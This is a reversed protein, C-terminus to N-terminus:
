VSASRINKFAFTKEYSFRLGIIKCRRRLEFFNGVVSRVDSSM